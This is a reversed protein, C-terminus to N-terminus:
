SAIFIKITGGVATSTGAKRGHVNRIMNRDVVVSPTTTGSFNYRPNFYIQESNYYFSSFNENFFPTWDINPDTTPPTFTRVELYDDTNLTKSYFTNSTNATSGFNWDATSNTQTCFCSISWFSYTNIVAVAGLGASSNLDSVNYFTNSLTLTKNLSKLVISYKKNEETKFEYDDWNLYIELILEEALDEGEGGVNRSLVNHDVEYPSYIEDEEFEFDDVEKLAITTNEFRKMYDDLYEVDNSSVIIELYSSSSNEAPIAISRSSLKTSSVNNPEISDKTCSVFFLSSVILLLFTFRM